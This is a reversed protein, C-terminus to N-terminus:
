TNTHGAPAESPTAFAGWFQRVLSRLERNNKQANAEATLLEGDRLLFHGAGPPLTFSTTLVGGGQLTCPTPAAVSPVQFTFVHGGLAAASNACSLVDATGTIHLAAPPAGSTPTATYVAVIRFAQPTPPAVGAAGSAGVAGIQSVVGSRLSFSGGGATYNGGGPANDWQGEGNTLAFEFAGCGAPLAITGTWQFDVGGVRTLPVDPGWGNHSGRLSCGSWPSDYRLTFTGRPTSSPSEAGDVVVVAAAAATTAAAARRVAAKRARNNLM